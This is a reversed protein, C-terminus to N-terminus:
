DWTPGESALVAVAYACAAASLEPGLRSSLSDVQVRNDPGTAPVDEWAACALFEGSGSLTVAAPPAAMRDLVARIGNAIARRQAVFVRRALDMTTEPSTLEPDGGLMRSLRAHAHEDTMPRGDATSHNGPEEPLFGLRVYVDNTTAFLEATVEPGLVGCVPTRRVGTYVLEGTRLREADTKGVPVAVGNIIPIIDTTTSGTDVLLAPGSPMERGVFTALAHWNAAAVAMYDRNAEDM